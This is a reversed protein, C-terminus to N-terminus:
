SHPQQSGNDEHASWATYINNGFLTLAARNFEILPIFVENGTGTQAAPEPFNPPLISPVTPANKEPRSTSPM